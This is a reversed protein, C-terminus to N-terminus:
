SSLVIGLRPPGAGTAPPFVARHSQTPRKSRDDRRALDSGRRQVVDTLLAEVNMASDTSRPAGGSANLESIIANLDDDIM